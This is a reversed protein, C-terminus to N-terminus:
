TKCFEKIFLRLQEVEKFSSKMKKIQGLAFSFIAKM